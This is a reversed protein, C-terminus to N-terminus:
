VREVLDAAWLVCGVPLRAAARGKARAALRLVDCEKRSLDRERTVLVRSARSAIHKENVVRICLKAILDRAKASTPCAALLADVDPPAALLDGRGLREVLQRIVRVQDPTRLRSVGKPLRTRPQQNNTTPPRNKTPPGDTAIGAKECANAVWRVLREHEVDSLESSHTTRRGEGRTNRTLASVFDAKVDAPEQGSKAALQAVLAHLKANMARRNYM